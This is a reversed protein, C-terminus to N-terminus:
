RGWLVYLRRGRTGWGVLASVVEGETKRREILAGGLVRKAEHVNHGRCLLRTNAASGKGGRAVPTVHDFELFGQEGCRHGNAGVFTCRGDDRAYVERKVRAPVTARDAPARAKRGKTVAFRKKEVEAIYLDLARSLVQGVERGAHRSLEMAHELKDGVEAPVTARVELREGDVPRVSYECRPSSPCLRAVEREVERKSKGKAKAALEPHADLHPAIVTATALNLEGSRIGDLIEPRTRVLRAVRIRRYAAAESYGLEEVAYRYLSPYGLGLALGREEVEALHLLVDALVSRERDVLAVLSQLLDDNSLSRVDIAM